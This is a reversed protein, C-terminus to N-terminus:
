KKHLWAGFAIVGIFFLVVLIEVITTNTNRKTDATEREAASGFAVVNSLKIAEFDARSQPAGVCGPGIDGQVSYTGLAKLASINPLKVAIEGQGSSFSSTTSVEFSISLRTGPASYSAGDEWQIIWPTASLVTNKIEIGQPVLWEPNQTLLPYSAAPITFIKQTNDLLGNEKPIAIYFCYTKTVKVREGQLLYIDQLAQVPACGSLVLFLVFGAFLSRTPNLHTIAPM